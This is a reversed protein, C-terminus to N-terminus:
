KTKVTKAKSWASYYYKTGIKKYTRVRVYYKKSAKLKTVKKSVTGTKAIKVTKAGSKFKSNLAYQLEYGTTQKAQKKWSATFGKEAAKVTSLATAKPVITFNKTLKGGCVGKGTITITATGVKTNNSYVIDYDTGSRLQSGNFKVTVAPKLAKGTYVVSSKVTVGAKSVDKLKDITIVKTDTYAKGEFSVSATYVHKGDASVTPKTTQLKISGDGLTANIKQTHKADNKCIFTAYAKDTGVWTWGKFEYAHGLADTSIVEKKDTYEKGNFSAKATWLAGSGKECTAEFPVSSLTCDVSEHADCGNRKCTFGASASENGDWTFEPEGWDHGLAPIEEQEVLVANCVACHKGETLGTETCTAAVAEDVVEEHPKTPTGKTERSLEEGCVTCRVVEDYSGETSCTSPLVSEKQPEGPTHDLKAITKISDLKRKGTADSFLANCNSCKYYAEWGEESCSPDKAAVAIIDHGLEPIPATKTTVRFSKDTFVASTYKRTGQKTCTPAITVESTASVTESETKGCYSCKHEATVQTMDKSWTYNTQGWNHPELPLVRIQHEGCYACVRYEKPEVECGATGTYQSKWNGWDHADSDVPITEVKRQQMFASNTFRDSVYAMEGTHKCTAEATVTSRASVTETEDLSPDSKHHRTATVSLGDDSWEYVPAEYDTGYAPIDATKTKGCRSCTYTMVGTETESAEQTVTGGDWSHGLAPISKTTQNDCKSCRGRMSGPMTCTPDKVVTDFVHADTGDSNMHDCVIEYDVRTEGCYQGTFELHMSYYGISAGYTLSSINYDKGETLTAGDYKVTLQPYQVEGNYQINPCTIVLKQSYPYQTVNIGPAIEIYSPSYIEQTGNIDRFIKGCGYVTCAYHEEMGPRGGEPEVREVFEIVHQHGDAEKVPTVVMIGPEEKDAHIQLYYTEGEQADFSLEFQYYGGYQHNETTTAIREGNHLVRAYVDTNGNGKLYYTGDAEPAFKMTVTEDPDELVATASSGIFLEKLSSDDSPVESYENCLLVDYPSSDDTDASIIQIFYRNGADARFWFTFSDTEIWNDWYLTSGGSVIQIRKKSTGNCKILYMGSKEPTFSFTKTEDSFPPTVHKFDGPSIQEYEANEDIEEFSGSVNRRLAVTYSGKQSGTYRTQLYYTQGKVATFRSSYYYDGDILEGGSIVRVKTEYSEYSGNECWFNYEGSRTPVFKFTATDGARRINVPIGTGQSITTCESDAPVDAYDFNVGKLTVYYKGTSDDEFRTQAYQVSQNFGLDFDPNDSSGRELLYESGYSSLLRGEKIGDGSSSLVYDQYGQVDYMVLTATQGPEEINIEVTEGPRINYTPGDDYMRGFRPATDFIYNLFTPYNDYAKTQLYYTNGAEAHFTVRNRSSINSDYSLEVESGQCIVRFQDGPDKTWSYDGTASPTFKFTKTEGPVKIDITRNNRSTSIPTCSSDAPVDAFGTPAQKLIVNYSGTADLSMKTQLYYTEGAVADFEFGGIPQADSGHMIRTNFTDVNDTRYFLYTGSTQPIFRFTGTKFKTDINVRKTDGANISTYAAGTDIAEYERVLGVHLSGTEGGNFRVRFYYSKGAEAAFGVCFDPDEEDGYSELSWSSSSDYEVWEACKAPIDGTSYFYYNGSEAATFRFTLNEDGESIQVNKNDGVSIGICENNVPESFDFGANPDPSKKVMVKYSGLDHGTRDDWYRQDYRTQIYFKQGKEAQFSNYGFSVSLDDGYQDLVRGKTFEEETDICWYGDKPATFLFTVTKDPRDIEAETWEDRTIEECEADDPKDSYESTERHIYVNFSGVANNKMGAQLYYTEGSELYVSSFLEPRSSDGSTELIVNDYEGSDNNYGLLAARRIHQEDGEFSPSSSVIYYGGEEPTFSFLASDGANDVNVVTDTDATLVSAGSTDPGPFSESRSILFAIYSEYAGQNNTVQLYYKKGATANFVFKLDNKDQDRNGYGLVQKGELVKCYPSYGGSSSFVYEGDEEPIFLFTVVEMIDDTLVEVREDESIPKCKRDIPVPTFPFDDDADISTISLAFSAAAGTDIQLYYSEGNELYVEENEIYDQASREPMATTSSNSIVARFDAANEEAEYRSVRLKYYGSENVSISYTVIEQGSTEFEVEDGIVLQESDAPPDNDFLSGTAFAAEPTFTLLMCFSLLLAFVHRFVKM